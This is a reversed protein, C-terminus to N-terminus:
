AEWIAEDAVDHAEELTGYRHDILDVDIVGILEANTHWADAWSEVHKLAQEKSDAAIVVGYRVCASIEFLNLNKSKIAM